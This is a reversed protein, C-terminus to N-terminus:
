FFFDWLGLAHLAAANSLNWNPIRGSRNKLLQPGLRAWSTLVHSHWNADESSASNSAGLPNSKHCFLFSGGAQLFPGAVVSSLKTFVSFIRMLPLVFLLVSPEERRSVPKPLHQTWFQSVRRGAVPRHSASILADVLFAACDTSHTSMVHLWLSGSYQISQNRRCHDRLYGTAILVYRRHM